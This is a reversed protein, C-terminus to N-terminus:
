TQNICNLLSLHYLEKSPMVSLLFQKAPNTIHTLQRTNLGKFENISILATNASHVQVISSPQLHHNDRVAPHCDCAQRVAANRQGEDARNAGCV